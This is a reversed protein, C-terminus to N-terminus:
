DTLIFAFALPMVGWAVKSDTERARKSRIKGVRSNQLFPIMCYIRKIGPKKKLSLMANKLNMWITAQILPEKKGGNNPLLGSYSHIVTSQNRSPFRPEKSTQTIIFLIAISM